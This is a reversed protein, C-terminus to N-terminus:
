ASAAWTGLPDIPSASFRRPACSTRTRGAIQAGAAPPLLPRTCAEQAACADRSGDRRQRLKVCERHLIRAAPRTTGQCSEVSHSKTRWEGSVKRVRLSTWIAVSKLAGFFAAASTLSFGAGLCALIRRSSASSYWEIPRFPFISTTGVLGQAM